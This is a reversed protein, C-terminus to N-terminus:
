VHIEHVNINEIYKSAVLPIEELIGSNTIRYGYGSRYYQTQGFTNYASVEFVYDTNLTLDTLNFTYTRNTTDIFVSYNSVGSIEDYIGYRLSYNLPGGQFVCEVKEWEISLTTVDVIQVLSVRPPHGYM